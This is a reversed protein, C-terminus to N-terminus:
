WPIDNELDAAMAVRQEPSPKIRTDKGFVAKYSTMMEDGVVRFDPANRMDESSYPPQEFTNGTLTNRWQADNGDVKVLEAVRELLVPIYRHDNCGARQAPVDPEHGHLECAWKGGPVPSSHACTRCNVNPLAEGHCLQNFPCFKCEFWAPDTSIRPPPEPSDIIDRAKALLGDYAAKDFEIREVYIEDTDKCVALYAARTMGTGGMYLQCQAEHQPMAEKVGKAKVTAFRKASHTKVEAVHWTKPAEPLGLVAADLHGRLHGDCAEIGHQNGAGDDASVTCGIARLEDLIRAEERHGTEFLRLMRGEFAEVSAWRFRLWLRRKCAQGLESAGLYPRPLEAANRQEHLDYIARATAHQPEPLAAM